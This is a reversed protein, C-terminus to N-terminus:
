CISCQIDLPLLLKVSKGIFQLSGLHAQLDILQIYNQRGETKVWLKLTLDGRRTISPGYTNLDFFRYSPNMTEEVVESIYVAEEMDPCHISFWTDAIRSGIADELRKQRTMTNANAWNLTSRRRLANMSPRSDISGDAM